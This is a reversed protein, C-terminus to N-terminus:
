FPQSQITIDDFSADIPRANQNEGIQIRGIPSTGFNDTGTLAAVSSGDLWVAIVSSTGTTTLHVVLEHWAGSSMATTSTVTRKAVDNRYSLRGSNTVLIGLLSGGSSTRLKLITTSKAPNAALRVWARVYADSSATALPAWAWTAPGSSLARAAYSGGHVTSGDIGVGVNTWGALTGSEFGTAFLPPGSSPVTASVSGSSPSANGAGDRATVTYSHTSGPTVSTDTWALSSSAVSAVPPGSGDRYIDYVTVGVDDTAAVWGLSVSSVTLGTVALGSPASPPTTDPLTSATVVASKASRNGAGDFADVEYGYSTGPQLGTNSWSTVASGLTVVASGARYVTYGAVGLNDSSATWSLDIRSVSMPTSVVDAPVSPAESDALGPTTVISPLSEASANGAADRARVRYSYSTGPSVTTDGYTQASGLVTDVIDDDRYIDYFAVGTDDVSPSWSVDVRGPGNAVAAVGTPVTPATTDVRAPGGIFASDVAVDDIALDFTRGGSNDGIQIRGVPNAGFNDTRSLEAIRVGDLWTEVEGSTGAIKLRVQLEHWAGLTVVTSGRVTVAGADNRLNLTGDTNSVYLGGISGGTATREKLIYVNNPGLSVIKFRVRYYPESMTSSLAHWAWAAGSVAVGRAANTGTYVETGQVTMGANTWAGLTGSEFGDSFLVAGGSSPTTASAQNSAPSTNGSLDRAKVTYTYTTSPAVTTDSWALTVGGVSARFAGNRYIDYASVGVNDSAAAWALEVRNSAIATAALGTPATPPESDTTGPQCAVGGSDLVSGATNIFQYGAFGDTLQLRLAGIAGPSTDFGAALRADTRAFPQIGHGGTGVVFQTIGSPSTNGSGDMPLWRQYEHDHGNLVLDVGATALMSWITAMRSTDSNPGISYRPHHFYAITCPASNAALDNALWTVQGTGTSTQNYQSTSDLSIFHWGGVTYSYYHPINDWYNFYGPALTGEYEHNGITPNTISRFRGYYETPGGYWNDFETATGKEYVDGLYLMLNPNWSAILDTAAQANPEGSAGDGAVAVTLSGSGTWNGLSPSFSNSNVPPSTVDNSLTLSVGGRASVFGDRMVAEAEVTGPGDVFKATDLTFAYPSALDTLLYAGRFYFVVKQIGPSSGTVSVTGTTSRLGSVTTGDAPSAICVTVAYSASPGSTACAATAAVTGAFPLSGGALLAAFLILRSFARAARSRGFGSAM